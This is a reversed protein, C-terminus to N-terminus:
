NERDVTPEDKLVPLDHTAYHTKHFALAADKLLEFFKAFSPLNANKRIDFIYPHMFNWSQIIIYWYNILVMEQPVAKQDYLMGVMDFTTGIIDFNQQYFERQYPNDHVEVLTKRANKQDPDDMVKFIELFANLQYQKDAIETQRKQWKRATYIGFCLISTICFICYYL